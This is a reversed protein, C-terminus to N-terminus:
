GLFDLDDDDGLTLSALDYWAEVLATLEAFEEARKLPM